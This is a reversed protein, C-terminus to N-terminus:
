ADPAFRALSFSSLDVPSAGATLLEAIADGLGASHKFGHGSCPSVVLVREHEPHRDVIFAHDPTTTYLCRTARLVRGDLGPFRDRILEAYVRRPEGTDVDGIDAPDSIPRDFRESGIKVGGGRSDVAPIGYLVDGHDLAWIFSPMTSATHDAADDRPAYWAITQPHVSVLRRQAPPLFGAVWSGASVVCRGASFTEAATRVRVGRDDGAVDLVACDRLLRAGFREAAALQTAICAEPRVHGASPEYCAREDGRLRFHPWRTMLQEATLEEHDIGYRRAGTVTDGVFDRSGHMSTGTGPEQIYVGGHQVLLTEGTEAELERWIAHSRTVLPTYALGEGIALRTIRTEGHNSGHAHPPSYRDIGLVSVGRRALQYAVAAGAAGLGVVIVDARSVTVRGTATRSAGPGLKPSATGAPAHEDLDGACRGNRAVRM